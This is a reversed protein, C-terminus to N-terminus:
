LKFYRSIRDYHSLHIYQEYHPNFVTAIQNLGVIDTRFNHLLVVGLIIMLRKDKDSPLRSKIRPFTGQLARMGWESAQRLSVYLGHLEALFAQYEPLISRRQRRSMPGVFKGWLPGNRPFGQDVCIAYDGLSELAWDIISHCVKADHYSGPYNLAAAFVKGTPAFALVNNCTTDHHYGNYALTQDEVTEACQVALAVGDIFGIVNAVRPERAQVMAAWQQKQDEDPYLIAARANSSLRSPVLKIMENIYKCAVSPVVGFILCLHKVSMRSGLYFLYLGLKGQNDLSSPRGAKVALEEPPFCVTFLDKFAARSFGTLDLFSSEDAFNVIQQWPALHPHQLASRTLKHRNRQSNVYLVM